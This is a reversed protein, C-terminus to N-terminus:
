LKALIGHVPSQNIGKGIFAPWPCQDRLQTAASKSNFRAFVCAGTGTMLVLDSDVAHNMLWDIAEKVEPHRKEVVAQCDNRGGRELFAAVTIPASDRTLEPDAFIQATSVSCEPKVVLYYLEPLDLAQLKEGVGEGWATRGRVFIPVDAGLRHGLDALEEISLQCKWLHNLALLTTSADSSGGGLGGGAPLHKRLTIDVGAKVGCHTQLAGAAQLVLNDPTNFESQECQLLLESDNRKKFHLEDGYDLLQFITQLQHYGDLRRGLIHLFLNLKAPAPLLLSDTM